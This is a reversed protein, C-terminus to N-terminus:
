LCTMCGATATVVPTSPYDRRKGHAEDTEESGLRGYRRGAKELQLRTVVRADNRYARWWRVTRGARCVLM